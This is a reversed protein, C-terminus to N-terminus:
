IIKATFIKLKLALIIGLFAIVNNCCICLEDEPLINNKEKKNRKTWYLCYLRNWIALAFVDILWKIGESEMPKSLFAIINSYLSTSYFYIIFSMYITLSAIGVM